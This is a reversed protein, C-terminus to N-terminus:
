LLSPRCLILKVAHCLNAPEQWANSGFRISGVAALWSWSGACSRGWVSVLAAGSPHRGQERGVGVRRCHTVGHQTVLASQIHRRIHGGSYAGGQQGEGGEEGGVLIFCLQQCPAAYGANIICQRGTLVQM